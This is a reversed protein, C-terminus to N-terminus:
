RRRRVLGLGALGACLLALSVPEPVPTTLDALTLGSLLVSGSGSSSDESLTITETASTAMFVYSVTQFPNTQVGAANATALSTQSVPSLNEGDTAVVDLVTTGTSGARANALVSIRYSDGVTFGSVIQSLGDGAGGIFGVVTAGNANGNNFYINMGFQSQGEYPTAGGTLATWGPVGSKYGSSNFAKTADVSAFSPDVIVPVAHAAGSILISTVSALLLKQMSM